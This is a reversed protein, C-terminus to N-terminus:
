SYRINPNSIKSLFPINKKELLRSFTVSSRTGIGPPLINRAGRISEDLIENFLFEHSLALCAGEQRLYVCAYVFPSFLLDSILLAIVM